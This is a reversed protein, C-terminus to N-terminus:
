FAIDQVNQSYIGDALVGDEIQGVGRQLSLCGKEKDVVRGINRNLAFKSIMGEANM